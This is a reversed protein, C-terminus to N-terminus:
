HAFKFEAGLQKLMPLFQDRHIMLHNGLPIAKIRVQAGAAAAGGGTMSRVADALHAPLIMERAHTQVIPNIGSPIDYGGAASVGAAMGAAEAMIGAAFAPAGIDIPWPAAAFSTLANLGALSVKGAATSEDQTKGVIFDTLRKAAIKALAGVVAEAVVSFMQKIGQGVSMTGHAVQAFVNAFGSEMSKVVDKWMSKQLLAAQQDIKLMQNQHRQDALAIEDMAKLKAVRDADVLALREKLAASEIQYRENELQRLADIEQEKTVKGADVGLQLLERKRQLNEMAIKESFNVKEEEIQKDQAALQRKVNIIEHEVQDHLKQGEKTKVSITDLKQQWYAMDAALDHQRYEDGQEKQQELIAKWHAFTDDPGKDGGQKVHKGEAAAPSADQKSFLDRIKQALEESRNGADTMAKSWQANFREPVQKLADAAGKFDGSVLHSIAEGVAGLSDKLGLVFGKIGQYVAQLVIELAYFVSVLGGIAAKFVAIATPGIERWWKALDTLIPMLADGIVKMLGMNVDHAEATARKYAKLAEVNQKGVTLGLEDATERAHEIDGAMLKLVPSTASVGKGFLTQAVVQRDIGAAYSNTIGIADELIADTDRLHGNADRTKLGLDNMAEEHTRIQRSLGRVASQVDDSTGGVEEIAVNYASAQETSVGMSKALGITSGEWEKTKEIAKDFAEGGAIAATVGAVVGAIKGMGATLGEMSVKMGEFSSKMAEAFSELAAKAGSADGTVRVQTTFDDSM